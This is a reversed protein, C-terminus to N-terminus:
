RMVVSHAMGDLGGVRAALAVIQDGRKCAHVPGTGREEGHREVQARWSRSTSRLGRSGWRISSSNRDRTRRTSGNRPSLRWSRLIFHLLRILPQSSASYKAPPRCTM